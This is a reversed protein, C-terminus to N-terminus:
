VLHGIYYEPYTKNIKYYKKHETADFWLCLLKKVVGLLVGHMYDPVIGDCISFTPLTMFYSPGKIGNVKLVCFLIYHFRHVNM